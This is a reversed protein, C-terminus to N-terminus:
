TSRAARRTPGCRARAPQRVSCFPERQHRPQNQGSDQAATVLAIRHWRAPAPPAAGPPACSSGAPSSSRASWPLTLGPDTSVPPASLSSSVSPPFIPASSAARAGARARFSPRSASHTPASVSSITRAARAETGARAAAPRAQPPRAPSPPRAACRPSRSRQGSRAPRSSRPGGASTSAHSVSLRAQIMARSVPRAPGLRQPRSDGGRHRGLPERRPAGSVTLTPSATSPLVTVVGGRQDIGGLLGPERGFRAADSDHAVLIRVRSPGEARVSGPRSFRHSDSRRARRVPQRRRRRAPRSAGPDFRGRDRSNGAHGAGPRKGHHSGWNAGHAYPGRDIVPVTMVNGKYYVEVETGCPLTRNAVGITRRRLIVGCATRHGYFGPGYLTATARRYVTISLAPPSAAASPAQNGQLVARVSM